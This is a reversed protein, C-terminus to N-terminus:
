SPWRQGRTADDPCGASSSGRGRDRVRGRRGARRGHRRRGRVAARARLLQGRQGPAPARPPDRPVARRRAADTTLGPFHLRLRRHPDPRGAHLPQPGRLLEENLYTGNTSGSDELVIARGHPRGARPPLLRVHGRPRDRGRRRPRAVRRRQPRLGRRAHLGPAAASACGPRRGRAAGRRRRAHRDRGALPGARRGDARQPAPGEAGLARDLAPVPLPRAPLRVEPRRRRPRAPASSWCSRAPPAWSSPRGAEPAPAGSGGPRQGERRQDLRPREVSGRQRGRAPDRRAQALREPRRARHRGRPQPWVAGARASCSRGGAALLRRAARRPDPGRAAACGTPRRTSWRTATSPRRPEARPDEHPRSSARRSASSAWSCREDTQFTIEPPQGAGAARPARARAPLRSARRRDRARRGRVARPRRAVALRTSTRCTPAASSARPARGDGRWSARSSSRGSRPSSSAGSRARSSTPSSPELNRLVSM